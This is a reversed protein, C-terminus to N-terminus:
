KEKHDKHDLMDLIVKLDKIELQELKVKIVQIVRQDRKVRPDQKVQFMFIDLKLLKIQTFKMQAIELKLNGVISEMMIMIVTIPSLLHNQPFQPNQPIPHFLHLVQILHVAVKASAILLLRLIPVLVTHQNLDRAIFQNLDMVIYQHPM